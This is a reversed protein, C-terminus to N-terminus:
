RYYDVYSIEGGGFTEFTSQPTQNWAIDNVRYTKNNYRTLVSEGVVAKFVESQFDQGPKSKSIDIRRISFTRSETIVGPCCLM